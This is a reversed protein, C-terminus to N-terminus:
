SYEAQVAAVLSIVADHAGVKGRSVSEPSYGLDYLKDPFEPFEQSLYFYDSPFLKGAQIIRALTDFIALTSTNM